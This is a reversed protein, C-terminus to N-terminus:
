ERIKQCSDKIGVWTVKIGDLIEVRGPKVLAPCPQLQGPEKGQRKFTLRGNLDSEFGRLPEDKICDMWGRAAGSHIKKGRSIREDTTTTTTEKSVILALEDMM